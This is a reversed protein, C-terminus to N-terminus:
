GLLHPFSPLYRHSWQCFIPHMSCPAAWKNPLFIKCNLDKVFVLYARVQEFIWALTHGPIAADLAFKCSPHSLRYTLTDTFGFCRAFEFPSIGRIHTHDGFHFEIGFLHQFMNQNANADFPACMGDVSVVAAGCLIIEDSGHGHIYYKVVLGHPVPMEDSPNTATFQVDQCCFNDDERALCM